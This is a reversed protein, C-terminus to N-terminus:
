SPDEGERVGGTDDEFPEAGAVMMAFGVVILGFGVLVPLAVSILMSGTAGPVQFLIAWLLLGLGSICLSMGIASQRNVVKSGNKSTDM